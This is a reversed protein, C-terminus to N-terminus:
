LQIFSLYQCQFAKVSLRHSDDRSIWPKCHSLAWAAVGPHAGSVVSGLGMSRSFEMAKVEDLWPSENKTSYPLGDLVTCSDEATGEMAHSHHPREVDSQEYRPCLEVLASYFLLSHEYPRLQPLLCLLCYEDPRVSGRELDFRGDRLM